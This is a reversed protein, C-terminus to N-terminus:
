SLQKRLDNLMARTEKGLMVTNQRTKAIEDDTTHLTFFINDLQNSYEQEEKAIHEEAEYLENLRNTVQLCREKADGAFQDDSFSVLLKQQNDQSCIIENEDTVEFHLSKSEHDDEDAKVDNNDGKTQAMLVSLLIAIRRISKTISLGKTKEHNLLIDKESMILGRKYFDMM